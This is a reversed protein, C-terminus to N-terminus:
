YFQKKTPVHNKQADKKVAERRLEGGGGRGGRGRKVGKGGSGRGGRKRGGM